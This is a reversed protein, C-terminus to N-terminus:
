ASAAVVRGPTRLEFDCEIRGVVRGAVNRIPENWHTAVSEKQARSMLGFHELVRALVPGAARPNGDEVKICVGLGRGVLAAGYCAEAGAKVILKGPVANMFDTDLRNTGAVMEPHSVMADRIRQLVEGRGGALGAPDALRAFARAAASLPVAFSPVGCGDVGLPIAGPALGCEKAVANLIAQQVPQDLALYTRPDAGLHTALALMGSHKGSCNHHLATFGEGVKEAAEKNYPAHRGCQLADERLGIKGLIGAVTAVHEAEGSHSGAMIALEKPTFGFRDAAGSEVLPLLQMPKAASRLFTVLRPNGFTAALRGKADAVALSVRHVSEVTEGRVFRVAVPDM